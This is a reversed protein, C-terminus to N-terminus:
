LEVLELTGQQFVLVLELEVLLLQVGESALELLQTVEALFVIFDELLQSYDCLLFYGYFPRM